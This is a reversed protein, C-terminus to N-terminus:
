SLEELLAAIAAYERGLSDVRQSVEPNTEEVAHRKPTGRTNPQRCCAASGSKEATM